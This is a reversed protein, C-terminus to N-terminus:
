KTYVKSTRRNMGLDQQIIHCLYTNYLSTNLSIHQNQSAHYNQCFQHHLSYNELIVKTIAKTWMAKVEHSRQMWPLAHASCLQCDQYSQILHTLYFPVLMDCCAEGEQLVQIITGNSEPCWVYLLLM